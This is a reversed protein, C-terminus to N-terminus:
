GNWFLPDEVVLDMSGQQVRNRNRRSIMGLDGDSSSEDTSSSSEVMLVFNSSSAM